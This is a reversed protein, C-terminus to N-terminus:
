QVLSNIYVEINTYQKILTYMLADTPNAPNLGNSREWDDPMGDQDSDLPYQGTHLLPWAQKSKEYPTGHPFGGQVDIIKGKGYRVDEVIRQDLTDRQFAAGALLLVSQYAASATQHSFDVVPFSQRVFVGEQDVKTVAKLNDTLVAPSGELENEEVFFKGYPLEATKSPDLIHQAAKKETSPGPKFYNAVVNYRGNEGGYVAKSKWNYVVNNRFDVLEERAGLRAGNFRPNRSVCHAFLNHHATLHAGGWIGGFGHHEWDKDGEEFHYSYDLPEAIINWQLTSSDGNYFSMVEDTSWSLSCHDIILNKNRTGSLADDGGSGPIMGKLGQYRDGMRIRLYRIIVQNGKVKVPQDAICIGEGPATQGAITVNGEIELPSTLHITGSVAFVITRKETLSAAARFSEPGHDNLNRVICIKGGRGGQTYKGFGEAGPFAPVPEPIMEPPFFSHLSLLFLCYLFYM